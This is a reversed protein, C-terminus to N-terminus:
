LKSMYGEDTWVPMEPRFVALTEKYSDIQDERYLLHVNSGADMTILPGDGKESWSKHLVTLAKM